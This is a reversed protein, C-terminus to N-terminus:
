GTTTPPVIQGAAPLWRVPPDMGSVICSKEGAQLHGDDTHAAGAMAIGERDKVKQCLPQDADPDGCALGQGLGVSGM